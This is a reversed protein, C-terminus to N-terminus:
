LGIREAAKARFEADLAIVQGWVPTHEDNYIIYDVRDERQIDTMQHAMRESIKEASAADRMMARELRLREPASVTVTFDMFVDMGSEFLIASEAIVYGADGGNLAAWKLFDATVAPHVIRELDSLAEPDNFVIQALAARDLVGGTFVNKGFCEEIAAALGADCSMLRKAQADTDYGCVGLMRFM